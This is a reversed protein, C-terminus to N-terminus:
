SKRASAPAEPGTFAVGAALGRQWLLRAPRITNAAVVLLRFEPPLSTAAAFELRAGGDNQDRITCDITMTDSLVVRAAKLARQRRARRHEPGTSSPAADSDKNM